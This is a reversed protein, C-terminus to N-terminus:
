GYCRWVVESVSDTVLECSEFEFCIRVHGKGPVENLTVRTENINYFLEYEQLGYCLSVTLNLSSSKLFREHLLCVRM